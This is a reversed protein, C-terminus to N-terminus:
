RAIFRLNSGARYLERNKARAEIDTMRHPTQGDLILLGKSLIFPRTVKRRRWADRTPRDQPDKVHHHVAPYDDNTYPLGM